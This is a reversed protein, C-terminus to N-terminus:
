VLVSDDAADSTYLLCIASPAARELQADPLWDPAPQRDNAAPARAFAAGQRTQKPPADASVGGPANARDADAGASLASGPKLREFVAHGSDGAAPPKPVGVGIM